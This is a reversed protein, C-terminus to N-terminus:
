ISLKLPRAACCTTCVLQKKAVVNDALPTACCSFVLAPPALSGWTYWSGVACVKALWEDQLLDLM